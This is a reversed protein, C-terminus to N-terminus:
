FYRRRCIVSVWALVPLNKNSGPKQGDIMAIRYLLKKVVECSSDIDQAYVIFKYKDM